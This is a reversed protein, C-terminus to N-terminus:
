RLFEHGLLEGATWREEPMWKLMDRMFGLFVEKETGALRRELSELSINGPIPAEDHAIWNGGEDFCQATTESRCVFEGPPPSGIVAVMRAVHRFPDHHRGTKPDFIDNGFLHEGEFLSWIVGAVGWVDVACGWDMEFIVEPARYISPQIFPGSNMQVTGIRAESFDCLTPLGYNKNGKPPPFPRSKYITRQPPPDTTLSVIKRPSPSTSEAAAFSPLLSTDHLTLLINDPKLDTHIVGAEAHLFDLALLIRKITMKLLPLDFPRPNLQLMDLLSMTMPQLLLCQHISSGKGEGGGEEEEGESVATNQLEFSDYVERILSQGPHSSGKNVVNALHEYVRYERNHSDKTPISTSIKLVKYENNLEKDNNNTSRLDRCVWSTSTSGYGLKGIIQYRSHYIDGINVPYYQKPNYYPLTEEEIPIDRPLYHHSTYKRISPPIRRITQIRLPRPLSAM